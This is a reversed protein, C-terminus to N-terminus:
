SLILEGASRCNTVGQEPNTILLLCSTPWVTECRM